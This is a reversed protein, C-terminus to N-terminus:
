EWKNNIKKITLNRLQNNSIDTTASTTVDVGSDDADEFQFYQLYSFISKIITNDCLM